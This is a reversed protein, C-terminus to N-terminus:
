APEAVAEIVSAFSPLPLVRTMTFGTQALLASFEERTREKGRLIAMMIVDATKAPHPDNGPPLVADVVLLRTGSAAARRCSALIRVCDGDDWDHLIHKLIYVDGGDPVGVFFDGAQFRCRGALEATDLDHAGTVQEKDFLIGSLGPHGLLVSRLLGGRGGGVDVVTGSDPFDCAEAVAAEETGSFAAMGRDFLERAESHQDLHAFFSSGFIKGFSPEGTRVVEDLSDAPRRFLDDTLMLVLNLQSGPVDTRLQGATPTLGFAGREDERFIGCSALLRLVRRLAPGHTGSRRGIEDPTLPGDALHDAIRYIAVVRLAACRYMGFLEHLLPVAAAAV